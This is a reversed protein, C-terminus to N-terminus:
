LYQQLSSWSESVKPVPSDSLFEVCCLFGSTEHRLHYLASVAYKVFSFEVASVAHLTHLIDCVRVNPERTDRVSDLVFCRHVTRVAHM